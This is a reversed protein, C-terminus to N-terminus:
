DIRYEKWKEDVMRKVDDDMEIVDPWERTFGEEKWKKTADIGMKSGINPLDTAHELVDM